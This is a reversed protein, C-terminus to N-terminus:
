RQYVGILTASGVIHGEMARDLQRRDARPPLVVETDLAYLRFYYHHFKGQPPCPGGYGLRQFSNIGQEPGGKLRQTNPTGAEIGGETPPIGYVVWHVWPGGVADPDDCILALSKTRAPVGTWTLPPASDVGDCTHAKPITRGNEFAASQLVFGPPSSKPPTIDPQAPRRCGSALVLVALTLIAAPRM